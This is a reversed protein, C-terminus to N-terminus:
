RVIASSRLDETAAPRASRRSPAMGAPACSFPASSVAHGTEVGSACPSSAPGSRASAARMRAPSNPLTSLLAPEIEVGLVEGADAPQVQVAAYPVPPADHRLLPHARGDRLVDLVDVGRPEAVAVLPPVHVPLPGLDPAPEAEAALKRTTSGCCRMTPTTLLQFTNPSRTCGTNPGNRSANIAAAAGEGM